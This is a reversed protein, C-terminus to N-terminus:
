LSLVDQFAVNVKTTDGQLQYARALGLHSLAGWPLNVVAGRYDVFKLFEAAAMLPVSAHTVTRGLWVPYTKPVAPGLGTQIGIAHRLV